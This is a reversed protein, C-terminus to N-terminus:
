CRTRSSAPFVEFRRGTRSRSSCKRSPSRASARGRVSRGRGRRPRAARPSIEDDSACRSREPRRAPSRPTARAHRPRLARRAATPPTSACAASGRPPASSATSPAPHQRPPPDRRPRVHARSGRAPPELRFGRPGTRARAPEPAGADGPHGRPRARQRTRRPDARSARRPSGARDRAAAANRAFVHLRARRAARRDPRPARPRRDASRAGRGVMAAFVELNERGTLSRYLDPSEIIAGVNRM